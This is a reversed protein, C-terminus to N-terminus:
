DETGALEPKLNLNRSADHWQCGMTGDNFLWTNVYPFFSQNSDLYMKTAIGYQKLNNKCIIGQALTRARNLSPTLIALLIAIISIVVLLEILTFGRHKKNKFLM